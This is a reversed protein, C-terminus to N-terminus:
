NCNTSPATGGTTNVSGNTLFRIDEGLDGPNSSNGYTEGLYVWPSTTDLVGLNVSNAIEIGFDTCNYNNLDYNNSTANLSNSLVLNFETCSLNMTVSTSYEHESDDYISMLVNTHNLDVATSPYFGYTINKQSGGYNTSVSLFTHGVDIGTIPNGSFPDRNGPNPQDAYLTLEFTSNGAQACDVYNGNADAAGFCNIFTNALDIETSSSPTKSLESLFLISLADEEFNDGCEGSEKTTKKIAKEEDETLNLDFADIFLNYKEDICEVLELEDFDVCGYKTNIIDVFLESNSSFYEGWQYYPNGYYNGNLNIPPALPQVGMFEDDLCKDKYYCWKEHIALATPSLIDDEIIGNDIGAGDISGEGSECNMQLILIADLFSPNLPGNNGGGVINPPFGSMGGEGDGWPFGIDFGHIFTINIGGSNGGGFIGELCDLFGSGSNGFSPCKIFLRRLWDWPDFRSNSALQNECNYYYDFLNFIELFDNKSKVITEGELDFTFSFPESKKIENRNFFVYGSGESYANFIMISKANGKDEDIFPVISVAYSDNQDNTVVTTIISSYFPRGHNEFESEPIQDDIVKKIYSRMGLNVYDQEIEDTCNDINTLNTTQYNSNSTDDNSLSETTQESEKQIDFVDDDNCSQGGILILMLLILSRLNKM